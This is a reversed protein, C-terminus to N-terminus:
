TFPGFECLLHWQRWLRECRSLNFELHRWYPAAFSETCVEELLGAFYRLSRVPEGVPRDLLSMSKRVSGLPIARRM